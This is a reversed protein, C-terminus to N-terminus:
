QPQIDHYRADILRFLSCVSTEGEANLTLHQSTDNLQSIYSREQILSSYINKNAPRGQFMDLFEEVLNFM